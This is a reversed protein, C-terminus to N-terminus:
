EFISGISMQVLLRKGTSVLETAEPRDTLSLLARELWGIMQPVSSDCRIRAEERFLWEDEQSILNKYNNYINHICDKIGKVNRASYKNDTGHVAENHGVWVSMTFKWTARVLTRGFAIVKGEKEYSDEVNTAFYKSWGTAVRGVIFHDWGIEKQEEFADLLIECQEQTVDDGFPLNEKQTREEDFEDHIWRQVGTWMIATMSNNHRYPKMVNRFKKWAYKRAEEFYDSHCKMYHLQEDVNGCETCLAQHARRRENRQVVKNTPQWRHILKYISIKYLGRVKSLEFEHADWDIKSFTEETWEYKKRLYNIIREGYLADIINKKLDKSVVHGNITLTAEAHKFIQKPHTNILGEKANERANTALEDARKNISEQSTTFQADEQHSKVWTFSRQINENQKRLQTLELLLEAEAALPQVEKQKDNKNYRAKTLASKNDCVLEINQMQQGFHYNCESIIIEAALVARIEERTSHLQGLGCFEASMSSCLEKDLTKNHVTVGCTGIGEKLGGDTGILWEDGSEWRERLLSVDPCMVHDLTNNRATELRRFIKRKPAQPGCYVKADVRVVNCSTTTICAVPYGLQQECMIMGNKEFKKRGIAKLKKQVGGISRFLMTEDESIMYTWIQHPICKWKGLTTILEDNYCLKQIYEKWMTRDSKVPRIQRSWRLTSTRFQRVEIVGPELERGNLKTIDSVFIVQLYIRCRNLSKMEKDTLNWRSFIQMIARDYQRQPPLVDCNTHIAGDVSDLGDKLNTLWTNEVWRQWNINTSLIHDSIGSQLQVVEILIRILVGLKDKRRMHTLLFKIKETIQVSVCSEWAMGGYRIPGHVVKRPYNRNFGSAPLCQSVVRSDIKEAQKRTFCVVSSIYRLRSMWLSPYVRGGCSRSFKANKVKKAFMTAETKWRGYERGWSGNAAVHCGLVRPADNVDMMPIRVDTNSETQHINLERPLEEKSKMMGIGNKWKWAIFVWFCKKLELLGGNVHLMQEWAQSMKSINAHVQDEEDSSLEIIDDNQMEVDDGATTGLTVDDVYGLGSSKHTEKGSPSRFRIGDCIEDLVIFMVILTTLWFAPGAGNGQGIGYLMEARTSTYANKSIGFRTKVYHTCLKWFRAFFIATTRPVGLRRSAVTQLPAVIRDYCGKADCDFIAGTKKTVRLVDMSLTKEMVADQATRQPVSGYASPHIEDHKLANEIMRKGFIIQLGANVQSDFLEIIRLRHTFPSGQDKELLVQVTKAWREPIMAHKFPLIMLRYHVELINSQDADLVSRYHGIHLGFPSTATTERKARWFDKYQKLTINTNVSNLINQNSVSMGEIYRQVTDNEHQIEPLPKGEVMRTAMDGTGDWRISDGWEGDAFPTNAAQRLQTWNRELLHNEVEESESIVIKEGEENNYWVESLAPSTQGAMRLRITRFMERLEEHSLLERIAQEQSLKNDRAYKEALENLFEQRKECDKKQIKRLTKYVDSLSEDIEKKTMNRNDSLGKSKSRAVLEMTKNNNKVHKKRMKWHQVEKVAEDLAPSWLFKANTYVKLTKEANTCLRHVDRDIAEYRDMQSMTMVVQTKLEGCLKELREYVKHHTFHNHVVECYSKVGKIDTSRLRRSSPSGTDLSNLQLLAKVNIDLYQLRHDGFLEVEDLVMGYAMTAHLVNETGLLLDIRRSSNCRVYTSPVGEPNREKAIDYLGLRLAMSKIESGDDEWQENADLTILVEHGDNIKEEVFKELDKIFCSQPTGRRNRQRLITEQQKYSTNIGATAHTQNKCCRYGTVVTFFSDNRGLMTVYSWRGLKHSDVGKVTRSSWNGDYLTATGGPKYVDGCATSSSSGIINAYRDVRRVEEGVCNRVHYNEWAVQTESMCIINTDWKRLLAVIGSVKDVKKVNKLIKKKQNEYKEMMKCKMFDKIKLGNVNNYVVRLNGNRQGLIDGFFRIEGDMEAGSEVHNIDGVLGAGNESKDGDLASGNVSTSNGGDVASGNVSYICGDEESTVM